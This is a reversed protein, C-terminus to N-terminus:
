TIEVKFGSNHLGKAIRRLKEDEEIEFNIEKRNFVRSMELSATHLNPVLREFLLIQIAGINSAGTRYGVIKLTSKM